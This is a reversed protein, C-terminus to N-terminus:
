GSSSQCGGRLVLVRVVTAYTQPRSTDHRREARLSTTRMRLDVAPGSAIAAASTIIAAPAVAMTRAVVVAEARREVAALSAASWQQVEVAISVL